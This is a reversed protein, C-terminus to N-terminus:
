RGHTPVQLELVTDTADLVVQLADRAGDLLRSVGRKETANETL